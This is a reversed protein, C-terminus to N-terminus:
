RHSEGKIDYIPHLIEGKSDVFRAMGLIRDYTYDSLYDQLSNGILNTTFVTPLRKIYRLNIIEYLVRQTFYLKEPKYKGLDDIMLIPYRGYRSIVDDEDEYHDDNYTKRVDQLIRTDSTICWAVNRPELPYKVEPKTTILWQRVISVGLHTKGVGPNSSSLCIASPKNEDIIPNNSFKVCAKYATSNDQNVRFTDFKYNVFLAGMKDISRQWRNRIKDGCGNECINMFGQTDEETQTGCMACIKIM